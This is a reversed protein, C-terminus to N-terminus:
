FEGFPMVFDFNGPGATRELQNIIVTANDHPGAIFLPKGKQGFEIQYPEPLEGRPTLLFQSLNFDNDPSFGFQDAYAIAGYIMQQALELSCKELPTREDVPEVVEDEYRQKSYNIRIFTNKLGLCYKDVLYVGCSIMGDPQQRAVILQVLGSGAKWDASIWCEYVPYNRAERIITSKSFSLNAKMSVKHQNAAKKRKKMVAKQQKKPDQPM